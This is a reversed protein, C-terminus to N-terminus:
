EGGVESESNVNNGDGCFALGAGSEAALSSGVSADVRRAAEVPIEGDPGNLQADGSLPDLRSGIAASCGSDVAGGAQGASPRKRRRYRLKVVRSRLDTGAHLRAVLEVLPADHAQADSM